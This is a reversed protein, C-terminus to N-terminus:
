RFYWRRYEGGNDSAKKGSTKCGGGGFTSNPSSSFHQRKPSQSDVPSGSPSNRRKPSIADNKAASNNDCYQLSTNSLAHANRSHLRECSQSTRRAAHQSNHHSSPTLIRDGSSSRLIHIDNHTAIISDLANAHHSLDSGSSLRKVSNNCQQQQHFTQFTVMKTGSSASANGKNQTTDSNAKIPSQPPLNSLSGIHQPSHHVLAVTKNTKVAVNTSGVGVFSHLRENVEGSFGSASQRGNQISSNRQQQQQQQTLTFSGHRSNSPSVFVGSDDGQLSTM